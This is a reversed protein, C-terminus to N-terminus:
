GARSRGCRARCEGLTRKPARRSLRPSSGTEEEGLEEIATEVAESIRKSKAFLRYAEALQDRAPVVKTIGAEILKREVFAVFEDSHMANLEVRQAEMLFAIEEETAGNLRLRTRIKNPSVNGFSVPESVLGLEQVDTLRLGLDITEFSSRYSYRRTDSCLTKAISFGSTDFDHLILLPVGYRACTKDILMRAATVSMGKCSMIAIDFKDAVRAREFIPTFGEKEIDLV